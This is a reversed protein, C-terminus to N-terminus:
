GALGRLRRNAVALMSLDLHEATRLDALLQDIRDVEGRRTDIWADLGPAATGTERCADLVRVTLESQLAYLDDVISMAAQKQWHSSAPLRLAGERLWAIGFRRGVGFYVAGVEDVPFGSLDGIRILDLGSVVVILSAVRRALDEPVGAEVFGATRADLAARGEEDLLRDLGAELREIGPRFHEIEARIALGSGCHRLVWPATREMLRRTLLMMRGQVAADVVTDLAQIDQWIARLGFSERVIIYARAVDGHDAGTKDATEHVFTPGARNVLSNTVWTAVIERHLPHRRIAEPFRERLPEPFYLFLDNELAPDDPLAGALLTEYLTIKAYSLLVAAEPRTLGQRRALREALAEDDPLVEIGRDLKGARELAKMFRGQQDLIEVGEAQALTIAQSQLYNDRLVLEAVEETMSELLANRQKLTMDGARVIGGLLIKINVEHDSCDVGASNDIFDTNLRVGQWAAEIRGGQTLALNAGEGIVKAHLDRGNVRLADNAKDGVEANSEDSAKVFTGIGGFWLLDAEAKLIAVILENPTMATRHIGFRRRMQPSVPVSKATRPFVGGGESILAPDYLDWSGRGLDFLRRREAFSKAPDPDPDVFVHLHNFAAVLRIHESLLMGNGFVDGAMDGIGIVTFDQSQTDVGMERFHRKVSEWAGRATIGMAKHDYGASGGSAFADDLWFDHEAAIGNAIDSFTATGKDAAVVLYSDDDDRRVVDPPPVVRGDALNDTVDLMGNMLMTYCAIGEAQLAERGGDHPPRKVVFGGKSGVPVIVGNKVMQAKMLGLVETRFDERRDSWRIGGRAVRGGRLHVGEMRPSYVFIERWPRPLPLEDVLGSDLKVSLYPKPGGGDAPQYFNTRLTAEVLNAFRRLIRDENLNEVQDLAAALAERLADRRSDRDGGFAPDFAARFLGLITRVIEPHRALTGEMLGQSFPVGAQRLYKAYARVITVSRWDLGACLVLRNFGDDETDGQWIRAFAGQFLAKIRALDVDAGPGVRMTFDHIWVSDDGNGPRVDFPHEAVVRLGMNELMPLVDSLPVPAGIHYLKFRLEDPLAEIPRYLNLAITGTRLVDETRDIDYIAAPPITRERYSTPFADGYRRFLALGQEEGKAEVLADKLLDPWERSATVLRAEVDKVDYDPIRGPATKVIFQIRAHVGEALQTYFATTSGDFATELIAQFRQRLDTNYRDRPVFVLCSVFREFPDKRVFLATRQREQLHLIGMATDLLEEEGIQYLEDRPYTDLIHALAKANHGITEFGAHVMARAVKRRLFPIDGPNETYATSTFLGVFIREGAVRRCDDFAKVIVADLHVARHVRSHRNAKTVTLLRPELMFAQIDEPLEPFNRRLGEFILVDPDRLVGLGSNPDITLDLRGDTEGFTYVRFGQFTFHNEDLWRLFAVAEGVEEQPVVEPPTKELAAITEMLRQRMDPWDQVTQRVEALTDAIRAEIRLLAENSTQEDIEIHMLSEARAEAPVPAREYLATLRGDGDRVVRVVPHIVLHVTLGMRNLAATTSDVLFPMDDNVIEVVTHSSHWGHADYRPNYARIRPTGPDREAGFQWLSLAAGYLDDSSEGLIDDPPVHRYYLRVFREAEEATARPLRDRVFTAVQEVLEQKNQEARLAM